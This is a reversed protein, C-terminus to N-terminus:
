VSEIVGPFPNEALFKNALDLIKSRVSRAHAKSKVIQCIDAHSQDDEYATDYVACGRVPSAGEEPPQVTINRIDTCDFRVLGLFSRTPKDPHGINHKEVRDNAMQRIHEEFAHNQRNVSLGKDSADNFATPTFTNAETDYHIPNLIQRYLVEENRVPGPSHKSAIQLEWALLTEVSIEQLLKCIQTNERDQSFFDICMM